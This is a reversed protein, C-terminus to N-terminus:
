FKIKSLINIESILKDVNQGHVVLAYKGNVPTENNQVNIKIENGLTVQGFKVIEGNQLILPSLTESIILDNEPRDKASDKSIVDVAMGVDYQQGLFDKIEINSKQLYNNLLRLSSTAATKRSTNISEVWKNLRWYALAVDGVDM